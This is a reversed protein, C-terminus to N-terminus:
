VPSQLRNVGIRAVEGYSFVSARARSSAAERQDAIGWRTRARLGSATPIRHLCSWGRATSGPWPADGDRGKETVDRRSRVHRLRSEAQTRSTTDDAAAM